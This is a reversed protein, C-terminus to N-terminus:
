ALQLVPKVTATKHHGLSIPSETRYQVQSGDVSRKVLTREPHRSQLLDQCVDTGPVTTQMRLDSPHMSGHESLSANCASGSIRTRPFLMGTNLEGKRAPKIFHMPAASEGRLDLLIRM